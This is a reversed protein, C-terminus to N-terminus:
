SYKLRFVESNSATITTTTTVRENHILPFHWLSIKLLFCQSNNKRQIMKISLSISNSRRYSAANLYSYLYSRNTIRDRQFMKLKGCLWYVTWFEDLCWTNTTLSIANQAHLSSNADTQTKAATPWRFFDRHIMSWRSIRTLLHAVTFAISVLEMARFDFSFHSDM